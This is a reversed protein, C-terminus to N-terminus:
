RDKAEELDKCIKDILDNTFTIGKNPGSILDKFANSEYILEEALFTMVAVEYAEPEDFPNISVGMSRMEKDVDGLEAFHFKIWEIAKYRNCFWSGNALESEFLEQIFDGAYEVTRDEDKWDQLHDIIEGLVDNKLTFM